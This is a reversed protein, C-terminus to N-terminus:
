RKQSFKHKLLRVFLMFYGFARCVIPFSDLCRWLTKYKAGINTKVGEIKKNSLYDYCEQIEISSLSKHAM